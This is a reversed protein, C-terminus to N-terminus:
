PNIADKYRVFITKHTNIFAEDFTDEIYRKKAIRYAVDISSYSNLEQESLKLECIKLQAQRRESLTDYYEIDDLKNRLSSLKCTM